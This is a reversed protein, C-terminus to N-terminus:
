LRDGNRARGLVYSPRLLLPIASGNPSGSRRSARRIATGNPPQRVHRSSACAGRFAGSRGRPRDLGGAHGPHSRRARELAGALKLPTQGGLQVIVGEPQELRVIELVDELTLPEFYLKDSTDWDTSVTEPNSNVMITEWGAERLAVSAQVCCYDFEVGQGIRIPGSGLIVSRAASLACPNTKRAMPQICTLLTRPSSARAPTWWTTPHTSASSGVGSACSWRPPRECGRLSRMASFGLKKMGPAAEAAGIEEAAAFEREAAVLQELQAIFWPDIGTLEASRRSASARSSRMNSRFRGSPPPAACRRACRKPLTTRSVTM